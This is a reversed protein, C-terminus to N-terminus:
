SLLIEKLQKIIYLTNNYKVRLNYHTEPLTNDDELIISRNRNEQELKTILARLQEKM